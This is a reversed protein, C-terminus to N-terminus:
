FLYFFVINFPVKNLGGYLKTYIYQSCFYMIKKVDELCRKVLKERKVLMVREKKECLKRKERKRQPRNCELRM